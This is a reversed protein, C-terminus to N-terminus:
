QVSLPAMIARAPERSYRCPRVAPRSSSGRASQVMSPSRREYPTVRNGCRVTIQRAELRVLQAPQLVDIAPPNRLPGDDGPFQSAKARAEGTFDAALDREQDAPAPQHLIDNDPVVALDDQRVEGMVTEPAPRETTDPHNVCVKTVLGQAMVVQGIEGEQPQVQDGGDAHPLVALWALKVPGM